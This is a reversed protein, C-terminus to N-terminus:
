LGDPIESAEEEVEGQPKQTEEREEPSQIEGRKGGRGGACEEKNELVDRRGRTPNRWLGFM